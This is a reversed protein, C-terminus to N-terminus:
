HDLHSPPRRVVVRFGRTGDRYGPPAGNRSAARADFQAFDWSGGRLVRRIDADAPDERGDASDYPYPRYQSSTWEWVNGSLDTIGAPTQGGPFVGIPTTRRVHTEFTNCNATEYEQGFAYQRGQEGRAAAEWEAETPLRVECDIQASLWACYARAEFWSVGVVPQAPHNFRSDDWYEPGVIVKGSPFWKELQEELEDAAVHKLWLFSEIQESTVNSL